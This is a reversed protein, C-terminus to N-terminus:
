EGQSWSVIRFNRDVRFAAHFQMMIEREESENQLLPAILATPVPTLSTLEHEHSTLDNEVTRVSTNEENTSLIRYDRLGHRDYLKLRRAVGVCFAVVALLCLGFAAVLSASWFKSRKEVSTPRLSEVATTPPPTIPRPNPTPKTTHDRQCVTCVPLCGIADDCQVSGGLNAISVSENENMPWNSEFASDQLQVRGSSLVLIAGGIVQRM